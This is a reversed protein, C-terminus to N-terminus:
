NFGIVWRQALTGDCIHMQVHQGDSSANICFGTDKRGARSMLTVVDPPASSSKWTENTVGSCDTQIIPSGNVIPFQNLYICRGSLQNIIHYDSGSLQSFLWGQAPSGDCPVQVIGVEGTSGGEPQLCKGNGVNQIPHLIGVFPTATKSTVPETNAGTATALAASAPGAALTGGLGLAGAIVGVAALRKLKQKRIENV